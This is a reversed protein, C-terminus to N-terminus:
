IISNSDFVRNLDQYNINIRNSLRLLKIELTSISLELRNRYKSDFSSEFFRSSNDLSLILIFFKLIFLLFSYEIRYGKSILNNLLM